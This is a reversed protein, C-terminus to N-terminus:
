YINTTFNSNTKRKRSRKRTRGRANDKNSPTEKTEVDNINDNLDLGSDDKDSVNELIQADLEREINSWNMRTMGALHAASYAYVATDLPENRIGALKEWVMYPYGNKHKTVQVEGCFGEYWNTDLNNPFNLYKAGPTEIQSRSYLTEKGLDVGIKYLSIGRKIRDGKHNVEQTSPKSVLPKDGSQGKIAFWHLYKYKRVNHYVEQTLYGSDICTARVKIETKDARQYVKGTVHALQEWVHHQLPDGMIKEYRIVYAQEGRGWAMVVVELRDAQVDVGATVILGGNPVIGQQYDSNSGRDRLRQWDLKEGAIHEFPLGLTSNCFVQLKQRDSKSTEYDLCLDQWGAWPSYFRNIHFGIHKPDVAVATAQWEGNRVMSAKHKEEIPTDCSECIYYVGSLPDADETGKGSYQVREWVLHQEHGCHPCPVFYRRKDSEEFEDEIRSNEKISPTSVLFVMWNWFTETRQIALKVPDGEKGASAPYKDIEDGFYARISMSALSSPSNAGALRLFGGAFMKMLITSTANRSKAVIKDSVPKVNTIASSLKEKSFMEAMNSTPHTMMMSCPDLDILYCIIILLIITKGIQASCMLTVKQIGPECVADLIGPQYAARTKNWKGPEASTEPLEFYEEAWDSPKVREPPKFEALAQKLLSTADMGWNHRM